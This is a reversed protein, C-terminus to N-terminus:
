EADEGEQGITFSENHEIMKMINRVYSSNSFAFGDHIKAEVSITIYNGKRWAIDAGIAYDVRIELEEINAVGEKIIDAYQEAQENAEELNHCVVLNRAAQDIYTDLKRATYQHIFIDIIFVAIITMCGMGIAFELFTM